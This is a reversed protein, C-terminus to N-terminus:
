KGLIINVLAPVDEVTINGDGNVDACEHYYLFPEKDDNDLIINVLATVDAITVLGDKNVDGLIFPIVYNRYIFRMTLDADKNEEIETIEHDAFPRKTDGGNYYTAAPTTNVTLSNNKETNIVVDSYKESLAAIIEEATTGYTGSSFREVLDNPDFPYTDMKLRGNLDVGSAQFLGVHEHGASANNVHNASWESADYDIHSILMGHWPLASDWHLLQRNELLYYEGEITNGKCYILYADGGDWANSPIGGLPKIKDIFTPALLEIPEIWGACWREFASYGAPCYGGNVENWSGNYSGSNMLDWYGMNYWDTSASATNYLDPFGLCHSFEHCFSGIGKIQTSLTAYEGTSSDYSSKTALECAVAFTNITVNNYSLSGFSNRSWRYYKNNVDSYYYLNSYRSSYYSENNAASSLSFKANWPCEEPGHDAQGQGAFVVFVQEVERDSDWDYVSFDVGANHAQKIAEYVMYGKHGDKSVLTYKGNSYTYLDGGYYVRNQPLTVPGVIDFDLEFQGRSQDIFYDKVSGHFPEETFHRENIVREYLSRVNSCGYNKYIDDSFKVDQFEALIVLAKKKGQFISKDPYIAGKRRIKRLPSVSSDERYTELQVSTADEISVRTWLGGDVEIYAFGSKDGWWTAWEDGYQEVQVSSGDVLTIMRLFGPKVPEASLILVMLLMILLISTGKKM